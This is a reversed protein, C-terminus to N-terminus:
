PALLPNIPHPFQRSLPQPHRFMRQSTLTRVHLLNSPLLLASTPLLSRHQQPHPITFPHTVRPMGISRLPKIWAGGRFVPMVKIKCRLDHWRLLTRLETAISLLQQEIHHQTGSPLIRNWTVDDQQFVNQTTLWSSTAFTKGRKDVKAADCYQLELTM